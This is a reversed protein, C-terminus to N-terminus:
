FIFPICIDFRLVTTFYSYMWDVVWFLPVLGGYVNGERGM